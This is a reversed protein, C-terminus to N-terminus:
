DEDEDKDGVVPVEASVQEDEDEEGSDLAHPMHVTAVTHDHAADSVDVALSVGAPMELGSLHVSDGM